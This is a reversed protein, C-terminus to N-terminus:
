CGSAREAERKARIEEQVKLGEAILEDRLRRQEESFARERGAVRRPPARTRVLKADERQGFAVGLFFGVPRKRPQKKTESLAYDIEWPQLPGESLIQHAVERDKPRMQVGLGMDGIRHELQAVTAIPEVSGITPVDTEAPVAGPPSAGVDPSATDHEVTPVDICSEENETQEDVLCSSSSLPRTPDPRTPASNSVTHTVGNRLAHCDGNRGATGMEANAESEAELRARERAEAEARVKERHRRQRDANRQREEEVEERSPQYELWDHFSYGDETREWLGLEVLRDAIVLAEDRLPTIRRLRGTTIHGDTLRKSSDCGIAVWVALAGKWMEPDDELAELKPHDPFGDDVRFWTM